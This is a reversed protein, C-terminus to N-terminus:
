ALSCLVHLCLAHRLRSGNEIPIYGHLVARTERMIRQRRMKRGFPPDRRRRYLLRLMPRRPLLLVRLRLLRHLIALAPSHVLVIPRRNM